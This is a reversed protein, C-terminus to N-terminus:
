AAEARAPIEKAICRASWKAREFNCVFGRSKETRLWHGCSSRTYNRWDAGRAQMRVTREQVEPPVKPSKRM